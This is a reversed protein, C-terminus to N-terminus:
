ETATESNSSTTADVTPEDSALPALMGKARLEAVAAGRAQASIPKGNILSYNGSAALSRFVLHGLAPDVHGYVPHLTQKDLCLDHLGGATGKIVLAGKRAYLEATFASGKALTLKFPATRGIVNSNLKGNIARLGPM